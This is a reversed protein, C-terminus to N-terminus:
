LTVAKPTSITEFSEVFKTTKPLISNTLSCKNRRIGCAVKVVIIKIKIIAIIQKKQGFPLSANEIPLLTDQRWSSPKIM